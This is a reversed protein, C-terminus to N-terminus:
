EGLVEIKIEIAKRLTDRAQIVADRARKLSSSLEDRAKQTDTKASGESNVQITYDRKSQSELEAKAIELVVKADILMARTQSVDKISAGKEIQSDLEKAIESMQSLSILMSKSVEQNIKVLKSNISDVDKARSKNRFTRILQKFQEKSIKLKQPANLANERNLKEIEEPSVQYPLLGPPYAYVIQTMYFIEVAVASSFFLFLIILKKKM